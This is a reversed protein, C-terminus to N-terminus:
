RIIAFIGFLVIVDRLLDAFDRIVNEERPVYMLDGPYILPLLENRGPLTALSASLDLDLTSESDGGRFIRVHRLDASSAPGGAFALAQFASVPTLSVFAGQNTVSGLIVLKQELAGKIKISPRITTTVYKSIRTGVVETLQGRTAGRAPTDGIVSITIMGDERVVQTSSFEPYDPVTIEVQDGAQIVYEESETSM